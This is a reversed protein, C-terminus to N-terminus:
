KRLSVSNANKIAISSVIAWGGNQPVKPPFPHGPFIMERTAPEAPAQM